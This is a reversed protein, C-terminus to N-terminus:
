GHMNEILEKIEGFKLWVISKCNGIYTKIKKFFFNQIEWECEGSLRWHSTKKFLGKGKQGRHIKM